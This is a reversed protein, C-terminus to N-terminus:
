HKSFITSFVGKGPHIFTNGSPGGKWPVGPEAFRPLKVICEEKRYGDHIERYEPWGRPHIVFKPELKVVADWAEPRDPNLPADATLKVALKGGFIYPSTNNGQSKSLYLHHRPDADLWLYVSDLNDSRELAECCQRWRLM